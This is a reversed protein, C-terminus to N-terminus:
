YVPYNRPYDPEHELPSRVGCGGLVLACLVVMCILFLIRKMVCIIFFKPRKTLKHFFHKIKPNTLYLIRRSQPTLEAPKSRRGTVCFTSPELGKCGAVM